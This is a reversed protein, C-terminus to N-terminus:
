ETMLQFRITYATLKFSLVALVSCIAAAEAERPSCHNATANWYHDAPCTSCYGGHWYFGMRKCSPETDITAAFVAEAAMGKTAFKHAAISVSSSDASASISPALALLLCMCALLPRSTELYVMERCIFSIRLPQQWAELYPMLKPIAGLLQERMHLMHNAHSLQQLCVGRQHSAIVRLRQILYVASLSPTLQKAVASYHELVV